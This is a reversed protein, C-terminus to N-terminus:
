NLNAIYQKFTSRIRVIWGRAEAEAMHDTIWRHCDTCAAFFFPVYTLWEGIRGAKHHVESSANGCGCECFPHAALYARELKTYLARRSRLPKSCTRIRTRKM